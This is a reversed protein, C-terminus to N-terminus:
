RLIVSINDIAIKLKKNISTDTKEGLCKISNEVTRSFDEINTLRVEPIGFAQERYESFDIAVTPLGFFIAQELVGSHGGPTKYPLILLDSKLFISLIEKESIFGLYSNILDRHSEILRNFEKEYAPFHHNIGGSIILKFKIGKNKLGMLVSLAMNIDKQPGWYGHMLIIPIANNTKEVFDHGLVENQYSTTIAELYKAQYVSVKNIGIALDIREKYIRLLVFTSVNQFLNKEVIRLFFSKVRDFISNYGLSQIDNTYVSNHYMVEVTNIRFLKTQLVPINLALFNTVLGRGFGTPLLNYIIKDYDSWPHRILRILSIPDDYNYASIVKVKKPIQFEEINDNLYPCYVDISSVDERLSLLIILSTGSTQLNKGHNIFDGIYAIRM